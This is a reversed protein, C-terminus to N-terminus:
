LPLPTRGRAMTLGYNRPDDGAMKILHLTKKVIIERSGGDNLHLKNSLRTWKPWYVGNPDAPKDNLLYGKKGWPCPFNDAPFAKTAAVYEATHRLLAVWSEISKEEGNPLTLIRPLPQRNPETLDALTYDCASEKSVQYSAIAKAKAIGPDEDPQGDLTALVCRRGLQDLWESIREISSIQAPEFLKDVDRQSLFMMQGFRAESIGQALMEQLLAHKAALQLWIPAIRQDPRCPSAPPAAQRHRLYEGLAENVAFEAGQSIEDWHAVEEDVGPLDPFTIHYPGTVTVARVNYPYAYHM